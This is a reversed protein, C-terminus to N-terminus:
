TGARRCARFLRERANREDAKAKRIVQYQASVGAEMRAWEDSGKMIIDHIGNALKWERCARGYAAAAEKRKETAAKYQVAKLGVEALKEISM